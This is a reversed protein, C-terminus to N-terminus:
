SALAAMAEAITRRLHEITEAQHAESGRLATTRTLCRMVRQYDDFVGIVDLRLPLARSGVTWAIVASMVRKGILGSADGRHGLALGVAESRIVRGSGRGNPSM